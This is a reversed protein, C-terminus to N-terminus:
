RKGAVYGTVECDVGARSRAWMTRVAFSFSAVRATAAPALVCPMVGYWVAVMALTM